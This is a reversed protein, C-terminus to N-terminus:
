CNGLIQHLVTPLADGHGERQMPIRRSCSKACYIVWHDFWDYSGHLLYSIKRKVEM